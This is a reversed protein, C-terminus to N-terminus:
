LPCPASRMADLRYYIDFEDEGVAKFGFLENFRRQREDDKPTNTLAYGHEAIIPALFERIMKRTIRHRTGLSQFHFRPGKRLTLFAVKGDVSVPDITWGDLSQVFQDKTIYLDGRLDNWLLDVLYSM